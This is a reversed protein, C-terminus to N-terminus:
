VEKRMKSLYELSFGTKNKKILNNYERQFNKWESEEHDWYFYGAIEGFTSFPSNIDKENELYQMTIEAFVDDEIYIYDLNLFNFESLEESEIFHGDKEYFRIKSGYNNLFEKYYNQEEYQKCDDENYFRTGDYAIYAKEVRM